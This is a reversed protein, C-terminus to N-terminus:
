SRRRGRTATAATSTQSGPCLESSAYDMWSAGAVIRNRALEWPLTQQAKCCCTIATGEAWPRISSTLDSEDCFTRRLLLIFLVRVSLTLCAPM